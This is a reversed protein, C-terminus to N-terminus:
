QDIIWLTFPTNRTPTDFDVIVNGKHWDPLLNEHHVIGSKKMEEIKEDLLDKAQDFKERVLRVTEPNISSDIKANELFEAVTIGANAKEMILYQRDLHNSYVIALHRPVRIFKPLDNAVAFLYDMRELALPISHEFDAEKIVINEGPIQYVDSHGGSRLWKRTTSSQRVGHKFAEEKYLALKSLIDPYRAKILKQGSETVIAYGGKLNFKRWRTNDFRELWTSGPLSHRDEM